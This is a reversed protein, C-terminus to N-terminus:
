AQMSALITATTAPDTHFLFWVEAGSKAIWADVATATFGGPRTMQYRYATTAGAVSTPQADSLRYPTARSEGFAALPAPAPEGPTPATARVGVHEAVWGTKGSYDLDGADDTYANNQSWSKPVAYGFYGDSIAQFGAPVDSPHVSPSSSGALLAAILAAVGVLVAPFLVLGMWRRNRRAQIPDFEELAGYRRREVGDGSGGAPILGTDDPGAPPLEDM